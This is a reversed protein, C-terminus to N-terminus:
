TLHELEVTINRLEQPGVNELTPTDSRRGLGGVWNACSLVGPISCWRARPTEDCPTASAWSTCCAPGATPTSRSRLAPSVHADLVRVHENEFLLTHNEPAATM